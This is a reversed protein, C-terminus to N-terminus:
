HEEVNDDVQEEVNDDVLKDSTNSHKIEKITDVLQNITEQLQSNTDCVQKIVSELSQVRKEHSILIQQVSYTQPQSM